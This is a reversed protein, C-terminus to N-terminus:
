KSSVKAQLFDVAQNTGQVQLWQLKDIQEAIDAIKWKLKKTTKPNRVKGYEEM